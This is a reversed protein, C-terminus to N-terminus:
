ELFIIIITIDDIYNDKEEFRSKALSYLEEIAKDCNLQQYYKGVIEVVENNNVYMWLGDSAIVIFKDVEKYKFFLIDPISIVGVKSFIKDGFARSMSLGPINNNKIWVRQPGIFENNEGIYPHIVGNNKNIRISEEKDEPKHERNLIEYAWKNEESIYQGKIARSDGINIIIIQNNNFLLSICTSGSFDININSENILKYDVQSFSDKISKYLLSNYNNNNITNNQSLNINLNKYLVIPLYTKIFSSVLHGFPGHGDCVGYFFLNLDEYKIKFLNDQNIKEEENERNKGKRCISANKVIKKHIIDKKNEVNKSLLFVNSNNKKTRICKIVKKNMDGIIQSSSLSYLQKCSNSLKPTKNSKILNNIKPSKHSNFNINIISKKDRNPTMTMYNNYINKRKRNKSIYIDYHSNNKYKIKRKKVPLNINKNINIEKKNLNSLFTSMISSKKKKSLYGTNEKNYFNKKSNYNLITFLPQNTNSKLEDKIKINNDDNFDIKKENNNQLSNKSKNIKIINEKKNTKEEMQSSSLHAGKNKSNKKNYNLNTSSIYLYKKRNKIRRKIEKIRIELDKCYNLNKEIDSKNSNKITINKPTTHNSTHGNIDLQMNSTKINENENNKDKIKNKSSGSLINLSKNKIRESLLLSNSLVYIKKLKKKAKNKINREYNLNIYNKKKLCTHYSKSNYNQKMQNQNNRYNIYIYKYKHEVKNSNFSSNKEQSENKNSKPSFEQINKLYNKNRKKESINLKNIAKSNGKKEKLKYKNYFEM